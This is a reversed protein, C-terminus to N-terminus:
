DRQIDGTEEPLNNRMLLSLQDLSQEMNEQRARRIGDEIRQVVAKSDEAERSVQEM